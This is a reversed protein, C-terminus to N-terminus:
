EKFELAPRRETLDHSSAGQFRLTLRMQAFGMRHGLFRCPLWSPVFVVFRNPASRDSGKHGRNTNVHCTIESDLSHSKTYRRLDDSSM